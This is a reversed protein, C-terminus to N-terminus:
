ISGDYIVPIGQLQTQATFDVSYTIPNVFNLTESNKFGDSHLCYECYVIKVGSNVLNKLYKKYPNKYGFKYKFTSNKLSYKICDGQLLMTINYKNPFLQLLTDIYNFSNPKSNVNDYYCRFLIDTKM